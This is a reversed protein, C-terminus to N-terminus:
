SHCTDGIAISTSYPGAATGMAERSAAFGMMSFGCFVCNWPRLMWSLLMSSAAAAPPPAAAALLLHAVLATRCARYQQCRSMYMHAKLLAYSSPM